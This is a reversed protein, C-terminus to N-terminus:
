LSKIAYNDSKAQNSLDVRSGPGQGPRNWEFILGVNLGFFVTRGASDVRFESLGAFDSLSRIKKLHTKGMALFEKKKIM